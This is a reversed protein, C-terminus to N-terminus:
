LQGTTSSHNFAIGEGAVDQIQMTGGRLRLGSARDIQQQKSRM